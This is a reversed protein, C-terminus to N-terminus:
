LSKLVNEIAHNGLFINFSINILSFENESTILSICTRQRCNYAVAKLNTWLSAEPESCKLGEKGRM